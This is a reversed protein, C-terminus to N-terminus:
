ATSHLREVSGSVSQVDYGNLGTCYPSEYNFDYIAIKATETDDYIHFASLIYPKGDQLVNNLLTATGLEDGAIVRCVARKESELGSEFECNVDVNCEQSTRRPLRNNLSFIGKYDHNIEGIELEGNFAADYPEEYQVILEDGPLPYVALKKYPKNNQSTFAGLILNKEKNFVFLRAGEPISFKSFIINLSYAGQSQIVLQWVRYGDIDYWEGSNQPTLSVPFSHAFKLSKDNRFKEDEALEKKVDFLPMKVMKESLSASKLNIVEM